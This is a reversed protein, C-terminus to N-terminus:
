SKFVTQAAIPMATNMQGDLNIVWTQFLLVRKAGKFLKLWSIHSFHMVAATCCFFITFSSNQLSSYKWM